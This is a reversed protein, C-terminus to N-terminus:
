KKERESIEEARDPKEERRNGKQTEGDEERTRETQNRQSRGDSVDKPWTVQVHQSRVKPELSVTGSQEMELRRCAQRGEGGVGRRVM